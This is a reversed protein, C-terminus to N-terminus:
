ARPHSHQYITKLREKPSNMCTQLKSLDINGLIDKISCWDAGNSLLYDASSYRISTPSINKSLALMSVYKDIVRRVSRDTLPGGSKNVFLADHDFGLHKMYLQNRANKLYSEIASIARQGIPVIRHKSGKGCVLICRCNFDVDKVTLSTLESVRVGSAYLLELLASDRQGLLDPSPLELMKEIEIIELAVPTHKEIRPTHVTDLPNEAIVEKRYLFQFFSRLSSIRRAMTRRAYGKTKLDYLYSRIHISPINAFIAEGFGQLKAFEVFSELDAVYSTVTNLSANKEVKLYLKYQEIQQALPHMAVM